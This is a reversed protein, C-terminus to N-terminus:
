QADEYFNSQKAIVAATVHIPVYGAYFYLKCVDLASAIGYLLAELSQAM